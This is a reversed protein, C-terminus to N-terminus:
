ILPEIASRSAPDLRELPPLEYVNGDADKVRFRRDPLPRLDETEQVRFEAPGRDTQVKWQQHGFRTDISEVATIKPIFSNDALWREVLRRQAPPLADLSDILLLERGDEDRISLYGDPHSWPFSRRIHVDIVDDFGPRRLILRGHDDTSLDFSDNVRKV